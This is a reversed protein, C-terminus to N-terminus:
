AFGAFDDAAIAGMSDSLEGLQTIFRAACEGNRGSWVHAGGAIDEALRAIAEAALRGDLREGAFASSAPAHLKAIQRVFAACAILTQKRRENRQKKEEDDDDTEEFRTAELRHALDELSGHRRPARLAELELRSTMRQ